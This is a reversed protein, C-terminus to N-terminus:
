LKTKESTGCNNHLRLILTDPFTENDLLCYVNKNKFADIIEFFSKLGKICIVKLFTNISHVHVSKVFPLITSSVRTVMNEWYQELGNVMSGTSVLM